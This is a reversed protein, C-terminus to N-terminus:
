TENAREHEVDASEVAEIHLFVEDENAGTGTWSWASDAIAQLMRWSLSAAGIEGTGAQRVSGHFRLVEGDVRFRCLLVAGPEAHGLLTACLEDTLLRADEIRHVDFDAGIAVSAAVTRAVPLQTPCAPIRLEVENARRLRQTTM